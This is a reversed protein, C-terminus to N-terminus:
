LTLKPAAFTCMEHTISDFRQLIPTNDREHMLAMERLSVKGPPPPPAAHAADWYYLEGSAQENLYWM